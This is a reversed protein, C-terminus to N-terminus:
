LFVLFQLHRDMEVTAAREQLPLGRAELLVQVEEAGQTLALRLRLQVLEVM